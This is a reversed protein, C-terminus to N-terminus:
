YELLHRTIAAAQQEGEDQLSYGWAAATEDELWRFLDMTALLASAIDGADYHAFTGSLQIVARPDAWEELFRGRLWTDFQEGKKARAHWELMGQLLGKLHMDVCSKAWWLEGRRLHRASWLTHYWFNSTANTFEQGTPKKFMSIEPLPLSLIQSLRGDKDVLVRVGRRIIDVYAPPMNHLMSDLWEPPNFAIDVDLGGAYLTRREWSQGDGTREVFTLWTPAIATAWASSQIFQELNHAFVLVDLDSWEDAPHDLRARSGLVFAARVDSTSAAWATIRETLDDYTLM